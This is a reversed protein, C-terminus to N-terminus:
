RNIVDSMMEAIAKDRVAEATEYRLSMTATSHGHRVMREKLTAGARATWTMSVHRLDHFHVGELGLRKLAPRWHKTGFNTATLPAGLQGVFFFGTPDAFHELHYRLPETLHPPIHVVRRGAESKPKGIHREGGHLLSMAEVVTITAANVDVNATRLAALEGFRLGCWAAILILAEWRGDVTEAIAAVQDVSLMPRESAKEQGAGRISAPNKVILEDDVATNLIARLLRYCKAATSQGPGEPGQMRSFWIRVSAPDVKGLDLKGFTPLIHKRLQWEYEQKTRPALAAGKVRRTEVWTAAYTSFPIRGAKPDLLEGREMAVQIRALARNADAKREFTGGGVYKGSGNLYRVNWKGSPLHRLNGFARRQGAM